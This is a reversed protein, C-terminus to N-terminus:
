LPPQLCPMEFVTCSLIKSVDVAHTADLMILTMLRARLDNYLHEDAQWLLALCM